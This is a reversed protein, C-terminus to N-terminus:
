KEYIRPFYIMEFKEFIKASMIVIAASSPKASSLEFLGLGNALM